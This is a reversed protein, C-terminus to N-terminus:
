EANQYIILATFFRDTLRYVIDKVIKGKLELGELATNLKQEFEESYRSLIHKVQM